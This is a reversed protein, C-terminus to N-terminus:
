GSTSSPLFVNCLGEPIGCKTVIENIKDTIDVFDDKEVGFELIERYIM